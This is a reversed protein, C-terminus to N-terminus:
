LASKAGHTEMWKWQLMGTRYYRLTYKLVFYLLVGLPVMVCFWAGITHLAASWFSWLTSWSSARVAPVALSSAEHRRFLREGLRFFPVLLAIQLPYVLYNVLQVAPLNLRWVIAALACLLTPCGFVPFVGLVFGVAVSLAITESSLGEAWLGSLRDWLRRM